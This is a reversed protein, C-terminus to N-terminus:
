GCPKLSTSFTTSGLSKGLLEYSEFCFKEEYPASPKIKDVYHITGEFTVWGKTTITLHWYRYVKPEGSDGPGIDFVPTKKGDIEIEINGAISKGENAITLVAEDSETMAGNIGTEGRGSLRGGKIVLIPRDVAEEKGKDRRAYYLTAVGVVCGVLSIWTAITKWETTNRAM